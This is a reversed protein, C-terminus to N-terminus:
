NSRDERSIIMTVEDPHSLNLARRAQEDLMDKEISGDRLLAVRKELDARERTVDELKTILLAKQQELQIRAYLGFEGHYAHFGFYGLFAATLIPLVFRGRISKRKQKTWM